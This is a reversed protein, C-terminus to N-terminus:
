GAQREQGEELGILEPLIGLAQLARALAPWAGPQVEVITDSLPRGLHRNISPENQLRALEEASGVRLIVARSLTVSAGGESWRQMARALSEPVQGGGARKLFALIHGVEIGEDRARRLSGASFRYVFGDDLAGVWDTVRALTFRDYRSLTRPAIATGDPEVVLTAGPADPTDDPPALDLLSLGADTLRFVGEGPASVDAASLQVLGLWRMPGTLVFRVLAGDVRDWSEFGRLYEGTDADRVYWSEWEGTPRQFDAAEAKVLAVFADVSWWAGAPLLELFHFVAQRALLPDNHAGAEEFALGPTHRLDNWTQSEAWAVALARAQEKRSSELWARAEARALRFVGGEDPTVLGLSAILDLLLALRARAPAGLLHPQLYAQDSGRLPGALPNRQLEALLPTVDDVASDDVAEVEDPPQAPTMEAEGRAPAVEAPEDGQSLTTFPLAERLDTPIYTYAVMAGAPNHDFASGILGRYFLAEAISAPNRYPAEKKRRAPGMERVEGFLRAFQASTMRGGSAHLTQMAGREGDGLRAWTDAARESDRMAAALARAAQRPDHTTLEVDWRGAIVRLLDLDYDQLTPELARM